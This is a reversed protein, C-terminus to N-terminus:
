VIKDSELRRCISIFIKGCQLTLNVSMLRKKIFKDDDSPPLTWDNSVYGFQHWFQLLGGPQAALNLDRWYQEMHEGM